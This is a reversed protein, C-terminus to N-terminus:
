RATLLHTIFFINTTQMQRDIIVRYIMVTVVMSLWATLAARIFQIRM